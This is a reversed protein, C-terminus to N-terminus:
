ENILQKIKKIDEKSLDYEEDSSTTEESNEGENEKTAEEEKEVEEKTENEKEEAKETEPKSCFYRISPTQLTM